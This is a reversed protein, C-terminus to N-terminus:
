GLLCAGFVALTGALPLVFQEYDDHRVAEHVRKWQDHVLGAASVGDTGGCDPCPCQKVERGCPSAGVVFWFEGCGLCVSCEVFNDREKVKEV